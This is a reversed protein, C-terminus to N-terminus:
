NDDGKFDTPLIPASVSTAVTGTDVGSNGLHKHKLFLDIFNEFNTDFSATKFGLKGNKRLRMLLGQDNYIGAEGPQWNKPRHASSDTAIIVLNSRDGGVAAAIAESDALPVSKFGYEALREIDGKIEKGMLQVQIVQLNNTDKVATIVAKGIMLLIRRKWPNFWRELQQLANLAM